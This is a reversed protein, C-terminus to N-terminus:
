PVGTYGVGTFLTIAYGCTRDLMSAVNIKVFFGLKGTPAAIFAEWADTSQVKVMMYM